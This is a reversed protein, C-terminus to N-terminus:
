NMWWNAFTRSRLYTRREKFVTTNLYTYYGRDRAQKVMEVAKDFVGKRNCVYDHTERMGDLHIMLFLHPSPPIIDFVKTDLKLANTCLIIYKGRAIIGECLEKLEPYLTPEGGCINVIPAGCDDVAKLLDAVPMRDLDEDYEIKAHYGDVTMVNM